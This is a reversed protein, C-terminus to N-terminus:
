ALAAYMRRCWPKQCRRGVTLVDDKSQPEREIRAMDHASRLIGGTAGCPFRVWEVLPGGDEGLVPSADLIVAHARGYKDIRAWAETYTHPIGRPSVITQSM